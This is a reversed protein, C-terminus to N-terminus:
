QPRGGANNLGMDQMESEVDVVFLCVVLGVTGCIMGDVGVHM